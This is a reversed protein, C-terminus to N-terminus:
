KDEVVNVKEVNLIYNLKQSRSMTKWIDSLKRGGKIGLCCVTNMLDKPESPIAISKEECYRPIVIEFSVKLNSPLSSARMGLDHRKFDIAPSLDHRIAYAAAYLLFDVRTEFTKEEVLKDAIGMLDESIFFRDQETFKIM